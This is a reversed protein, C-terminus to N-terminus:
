GAGHCLLGAGVELLSNSMILNAKSFDDTSRSWRWAYRIIQIPLRAPIRKLLKVRGALPVGGGAALLLNHGDKHVPM